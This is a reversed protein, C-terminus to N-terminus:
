ESSLVVWYTGNPYKEGRAFCAGVSVQKLKPSAFIGSIGAPLIEPQSQTYTLVSHGQSLDRITRTMLTNTQAM